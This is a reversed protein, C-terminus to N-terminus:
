CHEDIGRLSLLVLPINEHTVIHISAPMAVSSGRERTQLKRSKGKIKEKRSISMEPFLIVAEHFPIM